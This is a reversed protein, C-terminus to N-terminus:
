SSGDIRTRSQVPRAPKIARALPQRTMSRANRETARAPRQRCGAHGTASGVCVIMLDYASPQIHDTGTDEILAVDGRHDIRTDGIEGIGARAGHIECLDALRRSEGIECRARRQIAARPSEVGRHIVRGAVGIFADQNDPSAPDNMSGNDDAPMLFANALAHSAATAIWVASRCGAM